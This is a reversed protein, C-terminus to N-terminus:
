HKRRRDRMGLRGAVAEWRFAAARSPEDALAEQVFPEVETRWVEPLEAPLRARLFFALPLCREPDDIEADIARRLDLLADVFPADGHRQRLEEGDNEVRLVACSRLLEALAKHGAATGGDLTLILRVNSPVMLAGGGALAVERGRADLLALSEGFVDALQAREVDDILLVCAGRRAAAQRCFATFRGAQRSGDPRLSQVFDEYRWARHFVLHELLGDGRAVLEEALRRALHSKGSGPPGCLVLQGRRALAARAQDLTASESAPAPPSPPPPPALAMVPLAVEEPEDPAMAEALAGNDISIEELEALPASPAAVVPEPPPALLEGTMLHVNVVWHCFSELVDEPRRDCLISEALAPRLDALLRRAAVHAAPYDRLSGTFTSGTAHNLVTRSAADVLVFDSPRLAHLIPSVLEATFAASGPVALFAEVAQWMETPNDTCRRVMEFLGRGLDAWQDPKVWGAGEMWARVDGRVAPALPHVFAAHSEAVPGEEHPLLKWLSPESVERAFRDEEVLAEWNRRAVARIPAWTDLRTRYSRESAAGAAFVHFLSIIETPSRTASGTVPSTTM